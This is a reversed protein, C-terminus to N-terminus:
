RSPARSARRRSRRGARIPRSGRRGRPRARRRSRGRPARASRWRCSSARPPPRPSPGPSRSRTVSARYSCVDEVTNAVDFVPILQTILSRQPRQHSTRGWRLIGHCAAGALAPAAWSPSFPVCPHVQLTGTEPGHRAQAKAYGRNCEQQRDACQGFGWREWPKRNLHAQRAARQGDAIRKRAGRARRRWGARTLGTAGASGGRRAGGGRRRRAARRARGRAAASRASAGRAALRLSPARLVLSGAFRAMLATPAAPAGAALPSRLRAVAAARSTALGM